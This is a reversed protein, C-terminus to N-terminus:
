KISKITVMVRHSRPFEYDILKKIIHKLEDEKVQFTKKMFGKELIKFENNYKQIEVIRDKKFSKIVVKYDPKLKISESLIAKEIGNISVWGM